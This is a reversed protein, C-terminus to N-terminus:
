SMRARSNFTNNKYNKFSKGSYVGRYDQWYLVRGRWHKIVELFGFNSLYNKLFEGDNCIHMFNRILCIQSKDNKSTSNKQTKVALCQTTTARM